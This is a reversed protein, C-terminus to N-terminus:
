RIFLFEHSNVLTWVVDDIVREGYRSVDAKWANQEATNPDRGLISRYAVRVRDRDTSQGEIIDSLASGEQLVEDEVFGNLLALVQPVNASDFSAEIQERDSQGFMRLFHDDPAPSPLDSARALSSAKKRANRRPDDPDIGLEELEARLQQVRNEQGKREAKRLAVVRKKIENGRTARSKKMDKLASKYATPDTFRLMQVEVRDRLEEPSQLLFAEYEAYVPEALAGVDALTGDIDPLVLTLLSDWVQEASMRRMLPGPFLYPEDVSPEVRPSERQWTDTLYLVRQFQKLDFRVDIMLQTLRAMLAPNSAATDDTWSDVPEVLGRGMALRWMRNAINGAFRPNDPSTMWEAYADRSGIEPVLAGRAGYGLLSGNKKRKEAKAMRRAKAGTPIDPHVEPAEGFLPAAVLWEGPSADDYQYDDPLRALGTGSGSVGAGVERLVRGIAKKTNSQGKKQKGGGAFELALDRLSQGVSTEMLDDDVYEVGGSFAVMQFFEKQTWRDFPHNHCQACEIRTGLFVRATNAMHDEPMGRDRLSYGTAGNDRAHAAGEATLMERTMVDWPTNNEIADRLYHQYPEGSVYKNLKTKARFLDAYFNYMRSTYGPSDLLHDILDARKDQNKASTFADVEEATPIRGVISVYARRLFTEDDAKDNARQGAESLSMAILRDIEDAAREAGRRDLPSNARVAGQDSPGGPDNATAIVATMVFCGAMAVLHRAVPRLSAARGKKVDSANMEDGM